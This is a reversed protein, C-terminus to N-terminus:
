PILFFGPMSFYKFDHFGWVFVLVLEAVLAAGLISLAKILEFRIPPARLRGFM